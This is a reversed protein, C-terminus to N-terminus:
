GIPRSSRRGAISMGSRGPLRDTVSSKCATKSCQEVATRIQALDLIPLILQNGRKAVVSIGPKQPDQLAALSRNTSAYGPDVRWADDRSRTSRHYIGTPLPATASFPILIRSTM